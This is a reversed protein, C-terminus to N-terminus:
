PLQWQLDLVTLAGFNCAPSPTEPHSVEELLGPLESSAVYGVLIRLKEKNQSANSRLQKEIARTQPIRYGEFAQQSNVITTGPDM